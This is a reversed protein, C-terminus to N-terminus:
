ICLALAQSAARDRAQNPRCATTRAPASGRASAVVIELEKSSESRLRLLVVQLLCRLALYGLSWFV